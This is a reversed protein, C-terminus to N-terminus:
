GRRKGGKRPPGDFKEDDKTGISIELSHLNIRFWVPKGAQSAKWSAWFAFAHRGLVLILGVLVTPVLITLVEAGHAATGM